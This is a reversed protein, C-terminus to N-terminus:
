LGGGDKGFGIKRKPKAPPLATRQKRMEDVISIIVEDQDNLRHEHDDVKRAIDKHAMLVERMKIFARVVYVSAHIAQPSNLVTAAMIAGHETFAYPAYKSHQGRKLIAIQSRLSGLTKTEEMTLQFMFDEPFRELNRKVQENLRRTPVRYMEALDSGLMVRQGRLTIIRQELNVVPAISIDKGSKKMLTFRPFTKQEFWDGATCNKM